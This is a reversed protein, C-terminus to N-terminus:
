NKAFDNGMRSLYEEKSISGNILLNNLWAYYQEKIQSAPIVANYIRIEDIYGNFTRDAAGARQGVRILGSVDPPLYAFPDSDVQIGNIYITRVSGSFVVTALQWQNWTTVDNQTELSHGNVRFGIRRTNTLGFAYGNEGDTSTSKDIIRGSNSEGDSKPYIWASITGGTTMRLDPSDPLEIYDDSGDFSYCTNQPCSSYPQPGSITGETHNGWSDKANSDLKYEAVLNLMLANRLSNSFVQAKAINAKSTVGNMTVIILGSLIGIIAIVVLLEILTFATKFLKNM